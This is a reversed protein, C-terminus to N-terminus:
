FAREATIMAIRDSLDEARDSIKVLNDILGYVHLKRAMECDLRFLTKNAGRELHDIKGEGREIEEMCETVRDRNGEFLAHIGCEVNEFVHATLDLIERLVPVIEAPVDVQQVLLYDLTAEAANALTDVREIIELVQRRSPALLAGKILAMEVRRRVDDAAGEARHTELALREAEEGGGETFYARASDLFLDINRRVQALHEFVLGQVQQAKKWAGFM